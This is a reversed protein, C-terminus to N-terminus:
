ERKLMIEKMILFLYRHYFIMIGLCILSNLICFIYRNSLLISSLITAFFISIGCRRFKGRIFLIIFVVYSFYFINYLLLAINYGNSINIGKLLCIYSIINLIEAVVSIYFLHEQLIMIPM